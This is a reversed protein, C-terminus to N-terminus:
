YDKANHRKIDQVYVNTTEGSKLTLSFTLNGDVQSARMGKLLQIIMALAEENDKVKHNPTSQVDITSITSEHKKIVLQVTGFDLGQHVDKIVKELDIM